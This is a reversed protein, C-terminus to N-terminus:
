LSLHLMACLTIVNGYYYIKRHNALSNETKELFALVCPRLNALIGFNATPQFIARLAPYFTRGGKLAASDLPLAEPRAGCPAFNGKPRATFIKGSASHKSQTSFLKTLM